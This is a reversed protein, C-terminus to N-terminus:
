VAEGSFPDILHEQEWVIPTGTSACETLVFSYPEGTTPINFTDLITVGFRNTVGQFFTDRVLPGVRVQM